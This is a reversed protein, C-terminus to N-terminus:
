RIRDIEAQLLDIRENILIINNGISELLDIIKNYTQEENM